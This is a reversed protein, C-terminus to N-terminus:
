LMVTPDLSGFATLDNLTAYRGGLIATNQRQTLSSGVGVFSHGRGGIEMEVTQAEICLLDLPM